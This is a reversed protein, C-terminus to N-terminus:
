VSMKEDEASSPTPIGVKDPAMEARREIKAAICKFAGAWQFHGSTNQSMFKLSLHHAGDM